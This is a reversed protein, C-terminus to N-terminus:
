AVVAIFQDREYLSVVLQEYAGLLVECVEWQAFNLLQVLVSVIFVKELQKYDKLITAFEFELNERLSDPFLNILGNLFECEHSDLFLKKSELVPLGVALQFGSISSPSEIVCLPLECAHFDFYHWM